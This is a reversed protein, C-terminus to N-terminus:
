NGKKQPKLFDHPYGGLSGGLHPLKGHMFSRASYELMRPIWDGQFTVSARGLSVSPEIVIRTSIGAEWFSTQGSHPRQHTIRLALQM